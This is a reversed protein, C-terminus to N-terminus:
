GEGGHSRMSQTQQRKQEVPSGQPLYGGAQEVPINIQPIDGKPVQEEEPLDNEYGFSRVHRVLKWILEKDFVIDKDKDYLGYWPPMASPYIGQYIYKALQADTRNYLRKYENFNAPPPQFLGGHVKGAEVDGHAHGTHLTGNGYGKKGHCVACNADTM